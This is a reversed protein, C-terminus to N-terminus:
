FIQHIQFLNVMFDSTTQTSADAYTKPKLILPPKEPIPVNTPPTEPLPVNTPPKEPIPVNTPPKETIPVNTPPKEPIPVNTPPKEPLPVNTPPKETRKDNSAAEKDSTKKKCCKCNPPKHFFDMFNRLFSTM